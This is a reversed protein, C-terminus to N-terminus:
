GAVRKSLKQAILDIAEPYAEHEQELVRAGLTEETDDPLVSVVKQVLTQGADVEPVVYHVTCGTKDKGDEIVRQHTHLGKYEPLLSPHINIIQDPWKQIFGAGLIRMFGALCILDVSYASVVEHLAEEFEPKSSYLKHDVVQTPIGEAEAIELGKADPKNSIVVSVRAPFDANKCADIIASMNSGRGSIFIALDLM